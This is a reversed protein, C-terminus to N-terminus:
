VLMHVCTCSFCVFFFIFVFLAFYIDSAKMADASGMAKLKLASEVIAKQVKYLELVTTSPLDQCRIKLAITNGIIDDLIGVLKEITVSKENLDKCCSRRDGDTETFSCRDLGEKKEKCRIILKDLAQQISIKSDHSNQARLAPKNQNM